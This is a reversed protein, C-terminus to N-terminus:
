RAEQHCSVPHPSAFWVQLLNDVGSDASDDVIAVCVVDAVVLSNLVHDVGQLERM